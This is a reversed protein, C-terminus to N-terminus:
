IVLAQRYMYTDVILEGGNGILILAGWALHQGSVMSIEDVILVRAKLLEHFKWESISLQLDNTPEKGLQRLQKQVIDHQRIKREVGRLRDINRRYQWISKDGKGM